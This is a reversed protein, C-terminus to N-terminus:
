QLLEDTREIQKECMEEPVPYQSREGRTTCMVTLQNNCIPNIIQNAVIVKYSVPKMILMMASPATM